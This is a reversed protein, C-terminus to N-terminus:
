RIPTVVRILSINSPASVIRSSCRHPFKAELLAKYKRLESRPLGATGRVVTGTPCTTELVFLPEQNPM